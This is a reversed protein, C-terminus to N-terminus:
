CLDIVICTIERAALRDCQLKGIPNPFNQRSGWAPHLGWWHRKAKVNLSNALRLVVPDRFPRIGGSTVLVPAEGEAATRRCVNVWDQVGARAPLARGRGNM